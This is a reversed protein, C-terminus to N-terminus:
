RRCRLLRGLLRRLPRRERERVARVLRVPASVVARLVKRTGKVGRRLPQRELDAPEVITEVGDVGAITIPRTEAPCYDVCPAGLVMTLLLTSFMNM